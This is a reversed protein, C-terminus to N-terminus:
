AYKMVFHRLQGVAASYNRPTYRHLVLRQTVLSGTRNLTSAQWDIYSPITLFISAPGNIELRELAPCGCSLSAFSGADEFLAADARLTRLSECLRGDGFMCRAAGPKLKCNSIDLQYLRSSITLASYVEATDILTSLSNTLNLCELNTLYELASMLHRVATVRDLCCQTFDLQKLQTLSAILKPDLDSVGSVELYQLQSLEQLGPMMKMTLPPPYCLNLHTLSIPLKALDLGRTDLVDLKLYQLQQLGSLSASGTCAPNTNRWDLRSCRRYRTDSILVLSTLQTLHPLAASLEPPLYTVDVTGNRDDEAAESHGGEM